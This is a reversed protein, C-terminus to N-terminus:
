TECGSPSQPWLFGAQGCLLTPASAPGARPHLVPESDRGLDSPGASPVAPKPVALPLALSGPLRPGVPGHLPYPLSLPSM